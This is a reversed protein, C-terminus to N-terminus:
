IKRVGESILRREPWNKKSFLFLNNTFLYDDKKSYNILKKFFMIVFFIM